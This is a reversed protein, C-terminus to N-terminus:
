LRHSRCSHCDGKFVEVYIGGLGVVLVPGFAPDQRGGVLWELGPESMKQVLVRPGLRKLSLYAAEAAKEDAVGLVVGGADSKHIVEPHATKLAVPFGLSGPM